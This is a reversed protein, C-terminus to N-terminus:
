EKECKFRTRIIIIKAIFVNGCTESLSVIGREEKENRFM